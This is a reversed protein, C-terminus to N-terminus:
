KMMGAVVAIVGLVLMTIIFIDMTKVSVNVHEYLREKMPLNRVREIEERLRENEERLRQTEPDEIKSNYEEKDVEEEALEQEEIAKLDEPM